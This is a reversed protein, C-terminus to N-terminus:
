NMGNQQQQKPAFLKFLNEMFESTKEKMRKLEQLFKDRAGEAGDPQGNTERRKRSEQSEEEDRNNGQEQNYDDENQPPSGRCSCPPPPGHHHHSNRTGQEREANDDNQRM